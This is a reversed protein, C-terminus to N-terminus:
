PSYHPSLLLRLAALNRKDQRLDKGKPTEITMPHNQFRPDMLLSKFGELGILGRGIHTHRDVRSGLEMKSDNLHFWAIRELGVVRHFAEMTAAYGAQSRLDWGSAFVHCTDFCVGLRPGYHSHSLIWGIEEFSGGLSTGQGATTELLVRVRECCAEEMAADLGEVFRKLGKDPGTGLHAGPHAVLFSVGLAEARRLERAFAQISRMWLHPDPSALNILYSDHAAVPIWGAREWARRFEEVAQESLNPATWRRQNSLFIQLAEGKVKRLRQFALHLGGSISMHAGLLPM